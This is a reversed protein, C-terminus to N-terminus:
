KATVRVITATGVYLSYPAPTTVGPPQVGVQPYACDSSAFSFSYSGPVTFEVKAYYGAYIAGHEIATMFQYAPPPSSLWHSSDDLNPGGRDAYFILGKGGHASTKVVVSTRQDCTGAKLHVLAGHAVLAPFPAGTHTWPPYFANPFIVQPTDGETPLIGSGPVTTIIPTTEKRAGSGAGAILLALIVTLVVAVLALGDGNEYSERDPEARSPRHRFSSPSM